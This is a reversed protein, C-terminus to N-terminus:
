RSHARTLERIHARIAEQVSHPVAPTRVARCLGLTRKLSECAGACRECSELHREMRACTDAAIEGELYRSFLRVIDPCRRAGETAPADTVVGLFPALGERVTLRARHLRSKVAEISIRMVRAVDRAPLGEVDRLLLVDRYAPALKQISEDLAAELRRRELAVDPAPGLDPLELARRGEETTLSITAQPAHKRRRRKKICFSRAITYLWTSASAAGRFSRLTRFAALMTEQLVDQADEPQRCMRLSFRYVQPQYRELFADLARADGARAADVLAKEEAEVLRNDVL